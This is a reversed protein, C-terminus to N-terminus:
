DADGHFPQPCLKATPARAGRASSKPKTGSGSPPECGGIIRTGLSEIGEESM